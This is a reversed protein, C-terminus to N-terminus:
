ARRRLWLSGGTNKLFLPCDRELVPRALQAFFDNFFVIEFAANFALFARLAYLENWSRNEIVAWEYPYEFPHFVDHFHIVVGPKLRPLIEGLEFVVDSGTKVVHTSDIFLIDSEELAEFRAVPVDQIAAEVVEVRSRDADRLVEGLLAPYPEIFTLETALKAEDITDLTCASSWGSGVEILRRPRYHLLMARLMIADGYGFTPARFHYRHSPALTEPFPTERAHRALSDAWFRVMRDLDLDIGPVERPADSRKESIRGQLLRPDVVPSYFHGPPFFLPVANRDAERSRAIRLAVAALDEAAALETLAQLEAPQPDRHLIARFLEAVSEPTSLAM